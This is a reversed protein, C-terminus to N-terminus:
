ATRKWFYCTIYPQLNIHAASGGTYNIALSNHANGNWVADENASSVKDNYTNGETIPYSTSLTHSHSPMENVSLTHYAEGGTKEVKNFESQSTDVGVPVRGSGWKVWTGGLAAGVQAATSLTATMYISGVPYIIDVLGSIASAVIQPSFNAGAEDVLQKVTSSAALTSSSKVASLSVNKNTIPQVTGNFSISDITNVEAGTAIGALKTKEANTYNNDTHIYYADSVFNSNNTLQSTTTPITPSGSLDAYAGSFAVSSLSSANAKLAIDGTNTSVQASLTDWGNVSMTTDSEVFIKGDGTASGLVIGKVTNSADHIVVQSTNSAPFWEAVNTYYTWVKNNTPDNLKAGNIVTSRGTATQWATTLEAQTPSAPLGSVSVAGSLIATINDANSQVAQYTTANMVGAQTANAVPLALTESTTTSTYLNVKNETITTTSQDTTVTLDYGINTDLNSVATKDPTTYNNNTHVYSADSVFNSDNTLDSTKTPITAAVASLQASTAKTALEDTTAKQTMAGDTNQGTSSYLIAPQADASLTKTTSNYTLNAGITDIEVSNTLKTKDPTTYNNDTHVYSADSVFNSDNTLDSTKTPVALDISTNTGQNASFAGIETGNKKITLTGNKVEPISTNGDMTQNAYKPRNSLDNFSSSSRVYTPIGDSSYFYLHNNYEYELLVNRYKGATPPVQTEDGMSAPINVKHFTVPEPTPCEASIFPTKDEPQQNCIPCDM